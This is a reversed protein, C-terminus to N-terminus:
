FDAEKPNGIGSDGVSKVAESAAEIRSILQPKSAGAKVEAGIADIQNKAVTKTVNAEQEKVKALARAQLASLFSSGASGIVLSLGVVKILDYETTTITKGAADVMTKITPPFVWLAAVAAVAGIIVSAALGLDFFRKGAGRPLEIRGTDGGRNLMLEYAVGGVGGLGAALLFLGVYDAVESLEFVVM